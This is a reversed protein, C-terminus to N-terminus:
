ENGLVAHHQELPTVVGFLLLPTKKVVYIGLQGVFDADPWRFRRGVFQSPIQGWDQDLNSSSSRPYRSTRGDVACKACSWSAIGAQKVKGSRAPSGFAYGAMALGFDIRHGVLARWWAWSWLFNGLFRFTINKHSRCM